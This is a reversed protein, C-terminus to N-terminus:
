KNTPTILETPYHWVKAWEVKKGLLKIKLIDLAIITHLLPGIIIYPISYLYFVPKADFTWLGIWMSLINIAPPILFLPNLFALIFPLLYQIDIGLNSYMVVHNFLDKSLEKQYEKAIHLDGSIWRRQENVYQQWTEVEEQLLPSAKVIAMKYGRDILIAALEADEVLTKTPHGGVAEWVSKRYSKCGGYLFGQGTLRYRGYMTTCFWWFDEVSRMISIFSRYWNGALVVGTAASINPDSYPKMMSAIFNPKVVADVDTELIIDGNAYNKIADDILKAKSSEHQQLRIYRIKNSNAYGECIQQTNDTSGDDIVILEYKNSPYNQNLFNQICREVVSGDNWSRIIVSVHPFFDPYDEEEKLSFFATVLNIIAPVSFLALILYSLLNLVPNLLILAGEFVM